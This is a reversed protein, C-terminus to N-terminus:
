QMQKERKDIMVNNVYYDNTFINSVREGNLTLRNLKEKIEVIKEQQEAKIALNLEDLLTNIEGALDM